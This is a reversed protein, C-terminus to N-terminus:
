GRVIFAINDTYSLNGNIMLNGDEVIYTRAGKLSAPISDIVLNQGKIIFVNEIGNYNELASDTLSTAPATAVTTTTVVERM